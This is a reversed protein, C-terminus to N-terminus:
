SATTRPSTQRHHWPVEDEQAVGQAEGAAGAGLRRDDLTAVVTTEGLRAGDARLAKNLPETLERVQRQALM